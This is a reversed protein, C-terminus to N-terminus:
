QLELCLTYLVLVLLPLLRELIFSCFFVLFQGQDAM